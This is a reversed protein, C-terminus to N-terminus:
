LDLKRMAQRTGEGLREAARQAREEETMPPRGKRKKPAGAAEAPADLGFVGGDGEPPTRASVGPANLFPDSKLIEQYAWNSLEREMWSGEMSAIAPIPRVDSPYGPWMDATLCRQWLGIAVAVAKHALVMAGPDPEIVSGLFPAEMEQVFFRFRVKGRLEPKLTEIIRAQFAAQVAWGQRNMHWHITDPNACGETTKYDWCQVGQPHRDGYWDVLARTMAGSADRAYICLERYGYESDFAYRDIEALQKRAADVMGCANLYEHELIVLKDPDVAGIAAKAGKANRREFPLVEYDKGHGLLVAHAVSGLTMAKNAKKVLHRGDPGPLPPNLRPHEFRVRAPCTEVMLKALTSNLSPVDPPTIGEALDITLDSFYTAMSMDAYFGPDM